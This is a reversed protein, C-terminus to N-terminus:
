MDLGEKKGLMVRPMNDIKVARMGSDTRQTGLSQTEKAHGM